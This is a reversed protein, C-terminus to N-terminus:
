PRVMFVMCVACGSYLSALHPESMCLVCFMSLCIYYVPVHIYMTAEIEPRGWQMCMQISLYVCFCMYMYMIISPM